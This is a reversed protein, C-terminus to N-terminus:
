FKRTQQITDIFKGTVYYMRKLYKNYRREVAVEPAIAAKAGDKLGYMMWNSTRPMVLDLVLTCKNRERSYATCRSIVHNVTEDENMDCNPCKPSGADKYKFRHLDYYLLARGFRLRARHSATRPHDYHLYHPVKNIQFKELIRPYCHTLSPLPQTKNHYFPPDDYWSRYQQNWVISRLSKRDISSFRHIDDKVFNFAPIRSIAASLVNFPHFSLSPHPPSSLQQFFLAATANGTIHKMNLWRHALRAACLSFLSSVDLLRSEIFVSAHCTNHPLGLSCLLPRLIANKMRKYLNGKSSPNNGQVKGTKITEDKVSFFPFGYTLQPVLICKVLTQIVPFSPYADRRVLRSIMQSTCSVQKIVNCAHATFTLM